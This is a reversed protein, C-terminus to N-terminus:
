WSTHRPRGEAYGAAGQIGVVARAHFAGITAAGAYTFASRVGSVIQDIVDEVGPRQPDLYMKSSSIGEEFLASRAREFASRDRTRHGVARASAM